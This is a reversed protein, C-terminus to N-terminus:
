RRAPQTDNIALALLEARSATRTKNMIRQIHTSVTAPTLVLQEAIDKTRLGQALLQLVEAERSSLGHPNAAELAALADKAAGAVRRSPSAALTGLVTAVTASVFAVRLTVWAADMLGENSLLGSYWKTSWGGWVTVLRSENFSYIILLLIPIYLFAFGLAISTANFWSFRNKM